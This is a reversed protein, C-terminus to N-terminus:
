CDEINKPLFDCPQYILHLARAVITYLPVCGISGACMDCTAYVYVPEFKIALCRRLWSLMEDAYSLHDQESSPEHEIEVTVIQSLAEVLLGSARRVGSLAPNKFEESSRKM